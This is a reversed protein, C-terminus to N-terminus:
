ATLEINVTTGENPKSNIEISGNLYNVRYNINAFGIGKSKELINLDFGKGNDEVTILVKDYTKTLQVLVLNPQAHKVANNVLEQIIRYVTVDATNGLERETGLQECIIKVDGSSQMSDCFDKVAMKLGFRVLAEPMLNHSVKRLEETINDLGSLSKEFVALNEADIIMNEKMNLFSIKVGSLMGGLGDHLDKALRAREEDQGKLMAEVAMLKKEKELEIIKQRQILHQQTNLIQKHKINRYLLSGTILLAALAIVFFTNLLSKQKVTVAQIKRDAQLQIIEKEKKDNEYIAGLTNAQKINDETLLSDNLMDAEELTQYAGPYNGTKSYYAAMTRRAKVIAEKNGSKAAVAASEEAYKRAAAMDGSAIKLRAIDSLVIAIPVIHVDSNYNFYKLAQQLCIAASDPKSEKAYIGGLIRYYGGTVQTEVTDPMGPKLKNLYYRALSLDNRKFYIKALAGYHGSTKYYELAKGNNGLLEYIVAIRWTTNKKMLAQGANYNKLAEFYHQLATNFNQQTEYIMGKQSLAYGKLNYLSTDGSNNVLQIGADLYAIASDVKQASKYYNGMWILCAAETKSFKLQRSLKIAEEWYSLVEKKEKLFMATHLINCLAKARATDPHPFQKLIETLSDKKHTFRDYSNQAGLSGTSLLLVLVLNKKLFLHM